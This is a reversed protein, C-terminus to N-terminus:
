RKWCGTYGQLVREAEYRTVGKTLAENSYKPATHEDCFLTIHGHHEVPAQGEPGGPLSYRVLLGWVKVAGDPLVEKYEGTCHVACPTGEPLPAGPGFHHTIHTGHFRGRTGSAAHVGGACGFDAAHLLVGIGSYVVKPARGPARPVGQEARPVSPAPASSDAQLHATALGAAEEHSLVVGAPEYEEVCQRLAEMGRLMGMRAPSFHHSDDRQAFREVLRELPQDPMRVYAVRWTPSAAHKALAAQLANELELRQRATSNCADVVLVARAQGEPLAGALWAVLKHVAGHEERGAVATVHPALARAFTTKGSCHPGCLALVLVDSQDAM